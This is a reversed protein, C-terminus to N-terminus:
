HPKKLEPSVEKGERLLDDLLGDCLLAFVGRMAAERLAPDATLRKRYRKFLREQSEGPHERELQELLGLTAARAKEDMPAEVKAAINVPKLHPNAGATMKSLILGLTLWNM